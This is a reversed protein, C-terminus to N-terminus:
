NNELVLKLAILNGRLVVKAIVWFNEHYEKM